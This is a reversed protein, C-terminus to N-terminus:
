DRIEKLTLKFIGVQGQEYLNTISTSYEQITGKFGLDREPVKIDFTGKYLLTTIDHYEESLVNFEIGITILNNVHGEQYHNVTIRRDNVIIEKVM